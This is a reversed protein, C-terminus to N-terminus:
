PKAAEPSPALVVLHFTGPVASPRQGEPAAAFQAAPLYLRGSVPDLAATRASIDTAVSSLFLRNGLEVRIVSLTGSKGCPILFRHNQSDWIATDPGMGIPLLGILERDVMDVLAAKGNACASIAVGHEPSYALGTPKECGPMAITAIFKKAALDVLEIEGSAEDNVALMQTDYLVPVELGPKVAIQATEVQKTLDVISITGSDGGMVYATHSDPSLVVADPDAAVAISAIQKGSTADLIRLSNDHGSSVLLTDTGPIAIAAHAGEIEGITRVAPSAGPDVVLVDKGHAVIVRAHDKDWSAFDWRGDPGPIDAQRTFAAPSPEASLPTALGSAAFLLSGTAFLLRTPFPM